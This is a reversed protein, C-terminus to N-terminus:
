NAPLRFLGATVTTTSSYTVTVLGTSPDNYIEPPFPGILSDGTTAAVSVARGTVTIGDVTNPLSVTVTIPSGSANKVRLYMRGDNQFTDSSNVATLTQSIGLRSIAQATIVAM